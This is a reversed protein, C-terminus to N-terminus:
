VEGSSANNASFYGNYPCVVRKSFTPRLYRGAFLDTAFRVFMASFLGKKLEVSQGEGQSATQM